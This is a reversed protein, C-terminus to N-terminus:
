FENLFILKKTFKSNELNMKKVLKRFNYGSKSTIVNMLLNFFFAKFGNIRPWFDKKPGVMISIRCGFQYKREYM